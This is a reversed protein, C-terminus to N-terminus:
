NPQSIIGDLENKQLSDRQKPLLGTLRQLWTKAHQMARPHVLLGVYPSM